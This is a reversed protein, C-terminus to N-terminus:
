TNTSNNGHGRMMHIPRIGTDWNIDGSRNIPLLVLHCALLFPCVKKSYSFLRLLKGAGFFVGRSDTGEILIITRSKDNNVAIRFSEPKLILNKLNNFAFSTKLKDGSKKIIIVNGTAPFTTSSTCHLGTRKEIEETLIKIAAKEGNSLTQAGTVIALNDLQAVQAVSATYVSLSLLYLLIKVTIKKNM